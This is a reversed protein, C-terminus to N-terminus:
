SVFGTTPKLGRRYYSVLAIAQPINETEYKETKGDIKKAKEYLNAFSKETIPIGSNKFADVHGQRKALMQGISNVGGVTKGEAIANVKASTSGTELLVNTIYRKNQEKAWLADFNADFIKLYGNLGVITQKLLEDDTGKTAEAFEGFIKNYKEKTAVPTKKPDTMDIFKQRNGKIMTDIASVDQTDLGLDVSMFEQATKLTRVERSSLYSVSNPEGNIPSNIARKAKAMDNESDYGIYLKQKEDQAGILTGMLLNSGKSLTIANDTVKVLSKDKIFIDFQDYIPNTANGKQRITILTDTEAVEANDGLWYAIKEAYSMNQVDANDFKEFGAFSSLRQEKAQRDFKDTRMTAKKYIKMGVFANIVPITALTGVGAKM